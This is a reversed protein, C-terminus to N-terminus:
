PSIEEIAQKDIQIGLGPGESLIVHGDTVQLGTALDRALRTPGNIEAFRIVPCAHVCHAAAASGIGTDLTGIQCAIGAAECISTLDRAPALGGTKILKINILDAAGTEIARRADRPGHVSEDLMVPIPTRRRLEAHGALDWAALPQEVMQIDLHEVASLFRTAQPLSWGQNADLKLNIHPGVTDRIATIASLEQKEDLGTKLKLTRFGAAVFDRAQDVMARTKGVSVAKSTEIPGRPGGGLLRSVPLGALLGALDHLAMDIASKAATNNIMAANMRRHAHALDGPELDIVAPGLHSKIADCMGVLTEGTIHTCERAEGWGTAGCKSDARVIIIDLSGYTRKSTALPNALTLRLPTATIGSVTAM